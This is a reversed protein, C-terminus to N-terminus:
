LSSMFYRVTIRNTALFLKLHQTVEQPKETTLVLKLCYDVSEAAGITIEGNSVNDATTSVALETPDPIQTTDVTVLNNQACASSILTLVTLLLILTKFRTEFVFQLKM